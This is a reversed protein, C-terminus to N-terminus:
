SRAGPESPRHRGFTTGRLANPVTPLVLDRQTARISCLRGHGAAWSGVNSANSRHGASCSRRGLVPWQENRLVCLPQLGAISDGSTYQVRDPPLTYPYTASRGAAASPRVRRACGRVPVAYRARGRAGGRVATCYVVM